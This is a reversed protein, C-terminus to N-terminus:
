IRWIRSPSRSSVKHRFSTVTTRARIVRPQFSFIRMFQVSISVFVRSGAADLRVIQAREFTAGAQTFADRSEYIRMVGDSLLVNELCHLTTLLGTPGGGIVIMSQPPVTVIKKLKLASLRMKDGQLAEDFVFPEYSKQEYVFYQQGLKLEKVNM